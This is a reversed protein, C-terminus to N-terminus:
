KAAEDIIERWRALAIPEDWEREFAARAREGMTRLREPSARLDRVAAALGADDGPAVTLGCEYKALLRAVEGERDGVFIVARGAAMAGYFKSPVVLGEFEPLLTVLHVDFAALSEGLKEERVYSRVAVNVLGAAVVRRIRFGGGVVAFVIEEEQLLLRAGALLTECDHVRGFNGSYGVIFRGELGWERRLTSEGSPMPRVATGDAWNSAVRVPAGPVLRGLEAAMREGLVVNVAARRLSWDRLLRLFAGVPGRALWVGSRAATEPFIDQLWNVLRAGRLMAALATVVSILPPDTKAVVIDDRKLMRALAFFASLYFSLYDLSRGGLSGRGFRTTWVRHVRVGRVTEDAPYDKGEGDYALRSTVAHVERGAAALDFAVDAAHMGTPAFDPYFFRNVFVIM